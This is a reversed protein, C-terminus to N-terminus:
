LRFLVLFLKIQFLIKCLGPLEALKINIPLSFNEILNQITQLKCANTSGSQGVPFLCVEDKSLCPIYCIQQDPLTCEIVYENRNIIQRYFCFWWPFAYDEETLNDNETPTYEVYKLHNFLIIQHAEIDHWLRYQIANTKRELTYVHIPIGLYFAQPRHDLQMQEVIRHISKISNMDDQSGSRYSNM